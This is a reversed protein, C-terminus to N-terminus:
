LMIPCSAPARRLITFSIPIRDESGGGDTRFSEDQFEELSKQHKKLSILYGTAPNRDLM